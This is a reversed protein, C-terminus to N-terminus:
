WAIGTDEGDNSAGGELSNKEWDFRIATLPGSTKERIDIRYGMELLDRVVWPPVDQHLTLRGPQATHRDFSSHVQYSAINAAECAEQVTMGFEVLNLFLQLLNQEQTDGGQVSFCLFPRGHRLALSPTLTVRPQRGPGLLNYPNRREDMVFSPMRQSMAIGTDGAICAPIWGGSPTISVMWGEKDGAQISTTGARFGTEWAALQDPDPPADPLFAWDPRWRELLRSHPNSTGEFPYPDGPRVRYNNQNWDIEQRRQRAYEKSLLGQIPEVPPFYPDGYYFDRDAFALNMCQYLAHIYRTSNYGMAQLDLPELLNLMQLLVPGQTWTTLKYVEIGKYTTRVPEEIRVEWVALDQETHLGGLERSGACFAAAIDGKYFRDNAALIAEKRTAGNDRARSETEVLKRLTKLLDPQRFIEGTRPTADSEGPHLLFLKRSGRWRELHRRNRRIKSVLEEEIAFGDALEMAPALVEKLTLTGYEALMVMIGGPSGPTLAALPGKDPPVAMNRREFFEMTAGEPAVGCANIGVVKQTEPNYILAQTEGGWGADDFLTCSAALMACAADVANGGNHFMRAGATAALPKGAIAMWHRGHLPPKETFSQARALLM